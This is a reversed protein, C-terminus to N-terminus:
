AEWVTLTSTGSTTKANVENIPTIEKFSIGYGVPITVFAADVSNMYLQVDESGQNFVILVTRSEDYDVLQAGSTGVAVAKPVYNKYETM